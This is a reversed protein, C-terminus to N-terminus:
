LIYFMDFEDIAATEVCVSNQCDMGANCIDGSCCAQGLAGCSVSFGCLDDECNGAICAVGSTCCAQGLAGCSVNAILQGNVCDYGQIPPLLDCCSEGDSNLINGSSCTCVSPVEILLCPDYRGELDLPAYTRGKRGGGGMDFCASLSLVLVGIFILVPINKKMM